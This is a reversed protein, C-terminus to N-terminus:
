EEDEAEDIDEEDEGAELRALREQYGKLLREGYGQDTMHFEIARRLADLDFDPDDPDTAADLDGVVKEWAADVFTMIPGRPADLEVSAFDFNLSTGDWTLWQAEGSDIFTLVAEAYVAAFKQVFRDDIM